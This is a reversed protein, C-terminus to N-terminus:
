PQHARFSPTSRFSYDRADIVTGRFDPLLRGQPESFHARRTDRVHHAQMRKRDGRHLELLM